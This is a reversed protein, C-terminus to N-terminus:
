NSKDTLVENSLKLVKDYLNKLELDMKERIKSKANSHAISILNSITTKFEEIGKDTYQDLISPHIDVVKVLGTDNVEVKVLGAGSEGIFKAEAIADQAEEVIKLFKTRFPEPIKDVEAKFLQSSLSEFNFM